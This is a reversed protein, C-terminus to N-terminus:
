TVIDPFERKIENATAGDSLRSLLAGIKPFYGTSPPSGSPKAIQAEILGEAEELESIPIISYTYVSTHAVTHKVLRALEIADWMTDPYHCTVLVAQERWKQVLEIVKKLSHTGIIKDKHEEDVFRRVWDITIQDKQLLIVIM